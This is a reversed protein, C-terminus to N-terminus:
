EGINLELIGSVEMVKSDNADDTLTSFSVLRLSGNGRAKAREFLQKLLLIFVKRYRLLVRIKLEHSTSITNLYGIGFKIQYPANINFDDNTENTVQELAEWFVFNKLAARNPNDTRYIYASNDITALTYGDTIETNVTAIIGNIKLKTDAIIDDIFKELDYRM